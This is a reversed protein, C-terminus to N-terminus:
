IVMHGPIAQFSLEEIRISPILFQRFNINISVFISLSKTGIRFTAWRRLGDM